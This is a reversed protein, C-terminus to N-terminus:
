KFFHFAPALMLVAPSILCALILFRLWTVSFISKPIPSEPSQWIVGLIGITTVIIVFAIYILLVPKRNNFIATTEENLQKVQAISDAARLSVIHRGLMSSHPRIGFFWLITPAIDINTILGERKTVSSTIIGPAVKTGVMIVPTLRDGKSYAESSPASVFFVLLYRDTSTRLYENVDILFRACESAALRKYYESRKPLLDVSAAEVRGGDGAEIVIFRKGELRKLRDLIYAYNTRVGFPRRGDRVLTKRGIDGGSVVGRRDMAIMVSPRFPVAGRDSNGYVATKVDAKNLLDGLLGPIVEYSLTSNAAIIAAIKTQYIADPNQACFGTNRQWIAEATESGLKDNANAAYKSFADVLPRDFGMSRTGAGITVANDEFNQFAATKNNMLGVAGVQILKKFEPIDWRLMDNLSMGEFAVLVVAENKASASYLSTFLLFILLFVKQKM